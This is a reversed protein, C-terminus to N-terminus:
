AYRPVVLFLFSVHQGSYNWYQHPTNPPLYLVDWENVEFWDFTEPLYVHLTGKTTFIVKDSPHSRDDSRAGPVLDVSGASLDKSSVFLSEMIPHRDGHIFHLADSKTVTIM